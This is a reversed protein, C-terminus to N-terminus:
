RAAAQAIDDAVQELAAAHSEDDKHVRAAATLLHGAALVACARNTVVVLSHLPVDEDRSPAPTDDSPLSNDAVARQILARLWSDPCLGKGDALDAVVLGPHTTAELAWEGGNLQVVKPNDSSPVGADQLIAVARYATAKDM